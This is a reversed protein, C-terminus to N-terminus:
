DGKEAEVELDQISTLWALVDTLDKPTLKTLVGKGAEETEHPRAGALYADLQRQLAESEENPVRWM